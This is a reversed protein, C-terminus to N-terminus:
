EQIARALASNTLQDGLTAQQVQQNYATQAQGTQYGRETRLENRNSADLGASQGLVSQTAGLRNLTDSAQGSAADLALGSAARQQEVALRDALDGYNSTTMGSGVRGLAAAQQAIQKMGATQEDGIQQQLLAMNGQALATRDPLAALSGLAHTVAGQAQNTLASNAPTITSSQLDSGPGYSGLAVGPTGAGAPPVSPATPATM